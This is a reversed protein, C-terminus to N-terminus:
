RGADVIADVLLVRRGVLGTPIDNLLHVEASSERAPRYSSLRMFEIEPSAGVRDLARIGAM